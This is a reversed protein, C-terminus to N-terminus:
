KDNTKAKELEKRKKVIPKFPGFKHQAESFGDHYPGFPHDVPKENIKPWDKHIDKTPRDQSNVYAAIDWAEEDTLKPSDHTVGQPMNYKIYKALSGLRYLGAGSNYSHIGWLPPFTFSSSDGNWMGRGTTTHCSVCHKEYDAKGKKPDAARDLYALDKLGSGIAKEGKKVDKGLWNIYAVIAEMEKSGLDTATGNLSREFCDTVRKYINEITGSRPRYKPYTAFVSGYNNGFVRTGADLHCNQCNMGNTANANVKGKPGFYKSTNAILDKGYLIQEMAPNGDLPALEPAHWFTDMVSATTEAVPTTETKETEAPKVWSGKGKYIIYCILFIVLLVLGVIINLMLLVSTALSKIQEESKDQTM